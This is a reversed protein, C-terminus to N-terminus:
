RYRAAFEVVLQVRVGGASLVQGRPPSICHGLSYRQILELYMLCAADGTWSFIWLSFLIWVFIWLVFRACVRM